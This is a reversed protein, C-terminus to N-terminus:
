SLSELKRWLPDKLKALFAAHAAEAEAPVAIPRPTREGRAETVLVPGTTNSALTLGPQRGGRLELYVKALLKVDLVANHTSRESLDIDFRRCLADLSNPMGPFRKKAL